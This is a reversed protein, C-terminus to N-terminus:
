RASFVFELGARGSCQRRARLRPFARDWQNQAIASPFGTGARGPVMRWGFRRLFNVLWRVFPKRAYPAYHAIV